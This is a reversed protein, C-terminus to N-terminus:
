CIKITKQAPITEGVGKMDYQVVYFDNHRRNPESLSLVLESNDNSDQKETM